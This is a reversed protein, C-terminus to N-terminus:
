WLAWRATTAVYLALVVNTVGHAVVCSVLDKRVIWLGAMLLGYAVAAVYEGPDHGAAFALTSVILALPTWAGPEVESVSYRELTHGLANAVGARRAEQWQLTARLLFGRFLLEEFLAVVTGSALLRLVFAERGWAEGDETYFPAKLAVWLVTGVLGAAAGLGLSGLPDHSRLLPLYRKWGWALLAATVGLRLAYNAELTLGWDEPIAGIGVYAVFPLLYPILLTENKVPSAAGSAQIRSNSM